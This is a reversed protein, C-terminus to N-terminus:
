VNYKKVYFIKCILIKINNYQHNLFFNFNCNYILLIWMCKTLLFKFLNCSDTSPLTKDDSTSLLSDFRIICRRCSDDPEDDSLSTGPFQSSAVFLLAPNADASLSMEFSLIATAFRRKCIVGASFEASFTSTISFALLLLPIYICGDLMSLVTPDPKHYTTMNKEKRKLM